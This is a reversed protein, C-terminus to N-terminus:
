AKLLNKAIKLANKVTFGYHEKLEPLKGVIGFEDNIALSATRLPLKQSLLESIASTLGGVVNHNEMVFVNGTKKASALITKEDLPKITRVNLVDCTIGDKKLQEATELALSVMIGSAAITLDKGKSLVDAKFLDYKFAEKYVVPATKRTMRIYVPGDYSMIVPIAMAMEM